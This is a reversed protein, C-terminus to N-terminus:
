WSVATSEVSMRWARAPAKGSGDALTKWFRSGGNKWDYIVNLDERPDTKGSAYEAADFTERIIAGATLAM